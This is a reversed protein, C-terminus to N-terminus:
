PRVASGVLRYGGGDPEVGYATRLPGAALVQTPAGSALVRGDHLLVAHDAARRVEDLQHLVVVVVRGADALRRMTALFALAHGIDLASTPEDFLIAEAGTALARALLVRQQEGVSLRDFARGALAGADSASLAADIAARDARSLGGLAGRHAYRGHAVVEAVSLGSDLATRQPVYAVRRARARADRARLDDGALAIGGRSPVLGLVARLLTSKGAGNPGILATVAGARATLGVGHLVTRPGLAVTLDSIVLDKM